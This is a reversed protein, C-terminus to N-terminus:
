RKAAKPVYGPSANFGKVLSGDAVKWVRVEGDYGGAAVLSGDPSLAVAYVYDSVRSFVGSHIPFHKKLDRIELLPGTEAAAAPQPSM